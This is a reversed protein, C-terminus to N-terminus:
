NGIEVIQPHDELHLTETLLKLYESLLLHSKKFINKVILSKEESSAYLNESFYISILM